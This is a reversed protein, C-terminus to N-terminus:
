IQEIASNCPSNTLLGATLAAAPLRPRPPAPYFRDEAPHVHCGDAVVGDTEFMDALPTKRALKPSLAEPCNKECWAIAAKEDIVEVSTKGKRYGSRGQLYDVSRKKGGQAELDAEVAAQFQDGWMYALHQEAQSLQAQMIKAQEKIRNRAAEIDAMKGLYWNQLWQDPKQDILDFEQQLALLIPDQEVIATQENSM